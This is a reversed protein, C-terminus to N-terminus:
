RTFSLVSLEQHATMQRTHCVRFVSAYARTLACPCSRINIPLLHGRPPVSSVASPWLGEHDRVTYTCHVRHQPVVPVINLSLAYLLYFAVMEIPFVVGCQKSTYVRHSRLLFCHRSSRLVLATTGVLYMPHTPPPPHESARTRNRLGSGPVCCKHLM